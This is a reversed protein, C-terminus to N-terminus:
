NVADQALQETKADVTEILKEFGDRKLVCRCVLISTVELADRHGIWSGLDIHNFGKGIGFHDVESEVM